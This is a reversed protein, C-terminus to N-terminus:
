RVLQPAGVQVGVTRMDASGALYLAPQWTRDIKLDIRKFGVRPDADPLALSLTAWSEAVLTRGEDHGAIMVEVGMPAVARMSTPVRVQVYVHRVDSPVFLSAFRGTWRFPTGDSDTEWGFFGDVAQSAPPEVAGRAASTPALVVIVGALVATAWLWARPTRPRLGRGVPGANLLVSGALGAVLGFQMWFPYTVEDVLLPHGTVSTGLFALVGAAAGLLRWDRPEVVLARAARIAAVSLWIGFLGLGLLGLEAGVQLFYNHANERGYSWALEPTLFLPSLPYYQGVGFGFVPRAQIMRLSTANFQQRFGAGRYTPDSNLLRARVTGLGLAVVVLCLLAVTRAAPKWRDSLAWAAAVALAIAAAAMASRSEALWLGVLNAVAAASWLARARGRARIAMGLALCLIMAFYSGAANVDAVHASIRDTGFMHRQLIAAPAIGRWLLVSALAAVTASGALVAPLTLSLAPRRRFLMVTAVALGLGELLRAGELLGTREAMQYYVGYADRAVRALEGPVQELRWALGVISAIVTVAFLAGFMPAPVRPGPRDPGGRLVWGALFALIIAEGIRFHTPGIFEAILQGLPALAAALLLGHAPAVLTVGFVMGILLKIRWGVNFVLVAVTVWLPIAVIALRLPLSRWVASGQEEPPTWAPRAAVGGDPRWHKILRSLGSPM